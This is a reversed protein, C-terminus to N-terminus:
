AGAAGYRQLLQRAAAADRHMQRVLTEVDPFHEEDRLRAMFQVELRRGYIDRDFDFLHVELLAKDGAVTPRTGLSAVGPLADSGEGAGTVMVAFIGHLALRLRGPAINATPYGLRRGLGQGRRVRGIMSYPRGLLQAARGLDGAALASRVLTSSVRVGDVCFSPTDSIEFGFREGAAVLMAHDGRRRHGFRFDDGVIIPRAGLRAVLLDEIFREAPMTAMSEDFRLVFVRDVETPRLATLKERLTSLRAPATAPSFYERPAPEFVMVKAPLAHKVAEGALRSLVARHGLHVGDFNGITLVCGHHSRDLNHLGRIVRM